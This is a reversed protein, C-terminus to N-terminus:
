PICGLQLNCSCQQCLTNVCPNCHLTARSDYAAAVQMGHRVLFTSFHEQEGKYDVYNHKQEYLIGDISLKLLNPGDGGGAAAGTRRIAGVCASARQRLQVQTNRVAMVMHLDSPASHM